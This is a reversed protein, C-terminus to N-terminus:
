LVKEIKMDKARATAKAAALTDDGALVCVSNRQKFSERLRAAATRIDSGELGLLRDRLQQRREDSIGHLHRFLVLGVAEPPRMPRDLAHITGIIAQEVAKPSLDMKKEVYDFVSDFTQLSETVCPDRYTSLSFVGGLNSYSAKVGYAGRKARIEEWLYGYSLHQCLLLLAAADRHAAAPAQCVVANFAVDSPYALGEVRSAPLDLRPPSGRVDAEGSLKGLLGDYWGAFREGTDGGGLFSTSVRGRELLFDRIASLREALVKKRKSFQGALADVFRVHTVGGIREMLGLNSSFGRAARAVAYNSGSPLIGSRLSARKQLLVDELRKMDSFDCSRIRLEIVDLMDPLKRELSKSAVTLFPNFGAPDDYTGDVSAGVAMGGTAAAEREAMQAYNYPGAGMRLMATAFLPLYDVLSDDLGRLDFALNVYCIGNSFLDAVFLPRGCVSQTTTSITDQLKPVDKIALKPLTAVAKPSNPASQARELAEAELAVQKLRSASMSAKLKALEKAQSKEKRAFFEADPIFTLVTHHQNRVIEEDLIQEFFRDGKEHLGRLKALWDDLRLLSLPDAGYLWYNFVRDMLNLPFSSSIERTAFEFKNFVAEMREKEFGKKVVAACTDVVLAKIKPAADAATGKLGVTFYTDRQSDAYGSQTLAEGLRSDVLAKRLPSSANDLLYNDIIAMSLSRLTDTLAHTLFTVTVAAKAKEKEQTTAPFPIVASRPKKWRPQPGLSGDVHEHLGRLLDVWDHLRLLPEVGCSGYVLFSANSPHYYREHFKKFAKYTLSPIEEPLGGSDLGYANDPLLQRCEERSIIGDLDSYAGKMENYVIGKITLPSSPDGTKEFDLHHGEQKFHEETLLPRFVADCYVSALNLFDKQNMSACPYVTRDPYTMANLFTALSTKLLEVFPDKVPYKKSGCLTVHELIHPLGTNDLPPTRFAIAFLNEPDDSKLRMLRAGSKEHRMRVASLRAEPVPSVDEVVFGHLRDGKRFDDCADDGKAKTM